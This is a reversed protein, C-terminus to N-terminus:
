SWAVGFCVRGISVSVYGRGVAITAVVAGMFTLKLLM